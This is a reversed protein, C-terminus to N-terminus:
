ALLQAFFLLQQQDIEFPSGMGFACCSALGSCQEATPDEMQPTVRMKACPTTQHAGCPQELCLVIHNCPESRVHDKM